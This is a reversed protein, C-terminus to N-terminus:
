TKGPSPPVAHWGRIDYPVPMGPWSFPTYWGGQSKLFSTISSPVPESVGRLATAARATDPTPESLTPANAPREYPALGAVFPALGAVFPAATEGLTSSCVSSLGITLFLSFVIGKPYGAQPRLRPIDAAHGGRRSAM